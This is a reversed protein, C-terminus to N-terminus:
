HSEIILSIFLAELFLNPSSAYEKTIFWIHPKGDACTRGKLRRSRNGKILNIEWLPGKNKSITLNNPELSEMVKM